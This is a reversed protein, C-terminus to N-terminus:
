HYGDIGSSVSCGPAEWPLNQQVHFMPIIHPANKNSSCEWRLAQLFSISLRSAFQPDWSSNSFGIVMKLLISRSSNKPGWIHPYTLFSNDRDGYKLSYGDLLWRNPHTGDPYWAKPAYGCLWIPDRRPAKNDPREGNRALINASKAM